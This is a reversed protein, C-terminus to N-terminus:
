KDLNLDLKIPANNDDIVAFIKGGNLEKVTFVEATPEITQGESIEYNLKIRTSPNLGYIKSTLHKKTGENKSVDFDYGWSDIDALLSKSRFRMVLKVQGNEIFTPDVGEFQLVIFKDTAIIARGNAKEGNKNVIGVDISEIDQLDFDPLQVTENITGFRLVVKGESKGNSHLVLDEGPKSKSIQINGSSGLVILENFNSVPREFKLEAWNENLQNIEFGYKPGLSGGVRIERVIVVNGIVSTNVYLKTGIDPVHVKSYVPPSLIAATGLLSTTASFAPLSTIVVALFSIILYKINELKLM